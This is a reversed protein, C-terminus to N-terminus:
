RQLGSSFDSGSDTGKKGSPGNYGEDYGALGEGYTRLLAEQVEGYDYECDGLLDLVHYADVEEIAELLEGTEVDHTGFLTNADHTSFFDHLDEIIEAHEQLLEDEAADHDSCINRADIADEDLSDSDTYKAKSSYKAPWRRALVDELLEIHFVFAEQDDDGLVGLMLQLQALLDRADGESLLGMDEIGMRWDSREDPGQRHQAHIDVIKYFEDM